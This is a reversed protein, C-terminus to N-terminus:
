DDDEYNLDELIDGLREIEKELKEIKYAVAIFVKGQPHNEIWPINYRKIGVMGGNDFIEISYKNDIKIIESM